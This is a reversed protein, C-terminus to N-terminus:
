EAEGGDGGGGGGGDRSETPGRSEKKKFISEVAITAGLILTKARIDEAFQPHVQVRYTDDGSFLSKALGGWTRSVTGMVKNDPTLIKYEAKFLKGRIEGLYKGDKDYVHFGRGLGFLKAKYRGIVEGRPDVVQDKKLLWGTRGVCFLVANSAVDRVELVTSGFLSPLCGTIDEATGLLRGTEDLIEFSKKSYFTKRQSKVVFKSQEMLVVFEGTHVATPESERLGDERASESQSREQRHLM